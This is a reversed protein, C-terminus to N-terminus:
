HKVCMEILEVDTNRMVDGNNFSTTLKTFEDFANSDAASDIYISNYFGRFSSAIAMPDSSGM